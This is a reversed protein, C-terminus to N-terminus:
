GLKETNLELLRLFWGYDRELFERTSDVGLGKLALTSRLLARVTAYDADVDAVLSYDQALAILANLLLITPYDDTLSTPKGVAQFNNSHTDEREHTNKTLRSNISETESDFFLSVM